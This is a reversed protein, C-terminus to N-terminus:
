RDGFRPALLRDDLRVAGESPEVLGLLARALTTKGSGSEGVLGLTTGAGIEATVDHLAHIKRGRQRFVKGVGDFRLLPAPARAAVPEIPAGGTRPVSQAQEHFWCRSTGGGAVPLLDPEQERCVPQVLGCRDAFVCGDVETGLPPLFGPITDLRAVDKRTGGRPVCRLLGVTYPHRPDQLVREAEGEEVIRGAYLVAVRDCMRAILALNHSIFLVATDIEDRLGAVLDLVEAEVTADLGTTPEDLILLSPSKALAMAIVVRQQMGGSLQHPYRDLVSSVDAIRVVELVERSKGQAEARSAGRVEFVEGVQRGIRLSPNLAAAPNQYVIGVENAYLSRLEARSLSWVDRGAITVTGQQVRGNRPLYRIAALAATSKGCGSEGVLGLTAGRAVSLDVGHLVRRDVGRVRYAVDLGRVDLVPGSTM